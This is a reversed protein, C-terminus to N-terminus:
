HHYFKCIKLDILHDSPCWISQIADLVVSINALGLRTNSKSRAVGAFLYSLRLAATPKPPHPLDLKLAKRQNNLKSNKRVRLKEANAYREVLM